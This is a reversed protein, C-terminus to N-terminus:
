QVGCSLGAIWFCPWWGNGYIIYFIDSMVVTKLNSKEYESYVSSSCIFLTLIVNRFQPWLFGWVFSLFYRNIGDSLITEARKPMINGDSM